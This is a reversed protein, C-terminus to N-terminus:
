YFPVDDLPKILVLTKSNKIENDVFCSIKGFCIKVCVIICNKKKCIQIRCNNANFFM